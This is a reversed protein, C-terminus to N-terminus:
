IEWKIIKKNQSRLIYNTKSFHKCGFFGSNASFPSPHSTKLIYHINKNILQEKKQAFKGWLLFIIGKKRESLIEIIKNTFNEWGINNHSNPEKEKVTLTSNLLLVGQKGWSSLDGHTPTKIKLDNTMEKFINKLSPPIKKDKKVSFSLGNALGKRHYPDQGIIVVKTKNLSCLQLASFIYKKEPYIIQEKYEKDLFTELNTFYEKSFENKLVEEWGLIIKYDKQLM